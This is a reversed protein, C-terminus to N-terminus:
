EKNVQLSTIRFFTALKSLFTTTCCIMKVHVRSNYTLADQTVFEHLELYIYKWNM